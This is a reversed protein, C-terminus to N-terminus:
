AEIVKKVYEKKIKWFTAQVNKGNSVWTNGEDDIIEFIDINFIKDWSKIMLSEREDFPKADYEELIKTWEEENKSDDLYWKNLM